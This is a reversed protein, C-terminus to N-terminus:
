DISDKRWFLTNKLAKRLKQVATAPETRPVSYMQLECSSALQALTQFILEAPNLRLGLKDELRAVVRMSLLSHGGLDFFNDYRGVRDLGLVDQWIEAIHKELSTVPAVFTGEISPRDLDPAPLAQRDVKGSPTLPPADVFLFTSPVMYDPLRDGLFRRLESVSPEPQRNPVLYAVLRQEGPRDERGVVIAQKIGSLGLLVKEIEHVEVRYGRIKVQLDKRGTHVLCGDPMMFGLDGTLYIREEGGRLGGSFKAETLDPRQWYGRALYRSKIAIQGIQNFGAEMGGDENLVSVKMDELPYGVPVTSGTIPAEKNLFYACVTGTETSSLANVFICDKSFYKKYLELDRTFVPESGLKVLRLKPFTEKGTLTDVFYRFVTASSHYVTIEKEMLWARLHALGEERINIPFLTAGNLLANYINTMAQGTSCSAFLTLRDEECLHFANTMRMGQHLVHRHNQVVGVPHGTSGSTYIMYSLTDPSISLDLNGDSMHSDIQDLNVVMSEKNALGDALNLNKDDTILLGAQSDELISRSRERPLLPDLPVYFKGAKLLGLMATILPGGYELLLATPKEGKQDRALVTRAM